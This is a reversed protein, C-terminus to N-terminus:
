WGSNMSNASDVGIHDYVVDAVSVDGVGFLKMYQVNGTSAGTSLTSWTPKVPTTNVAVEIIANAGSGAKYHIWMYEPTNAQVNNGSPIAPTRSGEGADYVFVQGLNNITAIAQYTAGSTTTQLQCFEYLTSPLSTIKFKVFWYCESVSSSLPGQGADASTCGLSFSGQLAPTYGYNPSGAITTWGSPLLGTEFDQTLLNPTFGGGGSSIASNTMFHAFGTVRVSAAENTLGRVYLVPVGGSNTAWRTVVYGNTIFNFDNSGVLSNGYFLTKWHRDMYNTPGTITAWTEYALSNTTTLTYASSLLPAEATVNSITGFFNLDFGAGGSSANFVYSNPGTTSINTSITVNAGAIPVMSGLGVYATAYAQGNSAELAIVATGSSNTLRDYGNGTNTWTTTNFQPDPTYYNTANVTWLTHGSATNTAVTTGTGPQLDNRNTAALAVLNSVSLGLGNTISVGIAAVDNSVALGLGNTISTGMASVFNSVALGLGNTIGLGLGNTTAAAVAAVYNSLALLGNNTISTGMQNIRNTTAQALGNTADSVGQQTAYLSYWGLVNAGNNTLAGSAAAPLGTGGGGTGGLTYTTVGATWNSYVTMNTSVNIVTNTGMFSPDLFAASNIKGKADNVVVGAPGSAWAVNSYGNASFTGGNSLAGNAGLAGYWTVVPFGGPGTMTGSQTNTSVAINGVNGGSPVNTALNVMAYGNNSPYFFSGNGIVYTQGVPQGSTVQTLTPPGITYLTVGSSSNTTVLGNNAVNPQLAVRNTAAGTIKANVDSITDLTNTITVPWATIGSADGTGVGAWTIGGGTKIRFVETGPTNPTTASGAGSYFVLDYSNTPQGWRFDRTTDGTTASRFWDASQSVSSARSIIYGDAVNTVPIFLIGNHFSALAMSQAITPDNDVVLVQTLPDVGLYTAGGLKIRGGAISVVNSTVSADYIQFTDSGQDVGVAFWHQGSDNDRFFRVDEARTFDPRHLDLYQSFMRNTGTGRWDQLDYWSVTQGNTLPLWTLNNTGILSQYAAINTAQAATIGGGSGVSNSPFWGPPSASWTVVQGNTASDQQLGSLHLNTSGALNAGTLPSGNYFYVNSAGIYLDANSAFFFYNSATADNRVWQLGVGNANTSKALLDYFAAYPWWLSTNTGNGNNLAIANTANGGGKGNAFFSDIQVTDYFMEPAVNTGLLQVVNYFGNTTPVNFPFSRSPNGHLDLRYEGIMLINSFVCTGDVGTFLTVTDGAIIWPGAVAAGQPVTLTVTVPRGALSGSAFNHAQVQVDTAKADLVLTLLAILVTILAGLRPRWPTKVALTPYKGEWRRLIAHLDM